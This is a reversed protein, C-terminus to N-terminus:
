MSPNGSLVLKVMAAMGTQWVAPVTSVLATNYGLDLHTLLQLSSWAAPLSGSLQNYSLDMYTLATLTSWASPLPGSFRLLVFSTPKCLRWALELPVYSRFDPQALTADFRVRCMGWVCWVGYVLSHVVHM